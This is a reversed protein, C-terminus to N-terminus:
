QSLRIPGTPSNANSSGTSPLFILVPKKESNYLILRNKQLRYKQVSYLANSFKTIFGTNQCASVPQLGGVIKLVEDQEVHYFSGGFPVCGNFGTYTKATTDFLVFLTIIDGPLQKGDGFSSLQWSISGISELPTSNSSIISRPSNCGIFFFIIISQLLRM